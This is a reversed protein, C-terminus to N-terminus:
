QSRKQTQEWLRRAVRDPTDRGNSARANAARMIGVDIAEILPKLAAILKEDGAGRRALRQRVSDPQERILKIDLVRRM